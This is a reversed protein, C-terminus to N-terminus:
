IIFEFFMGLVTDLSIPWDIALKEMQPNRVIIDALVDAIRAANTGGVNGGGPSGGGGGNTAAANLYEMMPPYVDDAIWELAFGELRGAFADSIRGLGLIFEVYMGWESFVLPNGGVGPSGSPSPGPSAAPSTPTGPSRAIWLSKISLSKLSHAHTALADLGDDTVRAHESYM